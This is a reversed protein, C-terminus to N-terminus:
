DENIASSVSAWFSYIVPGLGDPLHITHGKGKTDGPVGPTKQLGTVRGGVSRWGLIEMGQARLAGAEPCGLMPPLPTGSVRVIPLRGRGACVPM